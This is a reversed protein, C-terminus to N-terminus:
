RTRTIVIGAAPNDWRHLQSLVSGSLGDDASIIGSHGTVIDHIDDRIANFGEGGGAPGPITAATETNAETGADYSSLSVSIAQDVSLGAIDINRVAVIADNTNVLMSIASLYLTDSATTDATTNLELVLTENAGPALPEAASSEVASTIENLLMTNDGSEALHELAISAPAGVEFIQQETDNIFITIPSLPQGATLNSLVVEFQVTEVVPATNNDSGSCAAVLATVTLGLFIPKM